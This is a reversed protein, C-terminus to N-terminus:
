SEINDLNLIEDVLLKVETAAQSKPDSELATRGSIMSSAFVTRNGLHNKLINEHPIELEKSLKSNPNYRNLLIWPNKGIEKAFEITKETAWLDTPSVQMPVIVLDAARIAIKADAQTHPPSDIIIFDNNSKLYAIENNVRIGSSSICKIGTYDDGFHKKRAEYWCMTSGQPDIDIINVKNNRLSLAVALHVVLTTKGAGGKQQAITIIKGM